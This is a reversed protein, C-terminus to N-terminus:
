TTPAASRLPRKLIADRGSYDFAIRLHLSRGHTTAAEARAIAADIGAPARDRRGIVSLRIGNRILRPVESKLYRRLLAMLSRVEPAPRRWNETSFAYVTLTGIGLDPAAETVQRLAEVGARHGLYRPLGRRSAWRGNGDMIIGVHLQTQCNIQM